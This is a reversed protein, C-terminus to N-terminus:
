HEQIQLWFSFGLLLPSTIFHFCYTHIFSGKLFPFHAWLKMSTVPSTLKIWCINWQFFYLVYGGFLTLVRNLEVIKIDNSLGRQMNCLWRGGSTEINIFSPLFQLWPFTEPNLMNRLKFNFLVVCSKFRNVIKKEALYKWHFSYYWRFESITPTHISLFGGTQVYLSWFLRELM